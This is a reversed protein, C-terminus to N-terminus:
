KPDSNNVIMLEQRDQELETLAQQIGNLLSKIQNKSWVDVLPLVAKRKERWEQMEAEIGKLAYRHLRETTM